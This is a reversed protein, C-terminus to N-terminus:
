TDVADDDIQDVGGKLAYLYWLGLVTWGAAILPSDDLWWYYVAFLLASLGLVQYLRYHASM